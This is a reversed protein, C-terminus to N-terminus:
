DIASLGNEGADHRHKQGRHDTAYVAYGQGVLARAFREYRGGHEAAGHVIQIVATPAAATSWYRYHIDTGDEARFSQSTSTDTNGTSPTSVPTANM